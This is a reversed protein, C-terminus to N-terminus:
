TCLFGGDVAITQGNVYSADDSALFAVVAAMEESRARRGLPIRSVLQDPSLGLQDIAELMRPTDTGGPAVGNVRIGHPGLDRALSKTLLLVGGKSAAYAPVDAEPTFGNVSGITIISGSGRPIMVRAAERACFFVGTLNVDIIRRWQEDTVSTLPGLYANLGALAANAVLIDLKGDQAVADGVVKAVAEGDSVDLVSWRAQGGAASIEDATQRTNEAQRGTVHVMAGEAALRHAIAAGIGTGAGTVLAVRNALRQESM